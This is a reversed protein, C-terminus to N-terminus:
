FGSTNMKENQSMHKRTLKTKHHSFGCMWVGFSCFSIWLFGQFLTMTTPKSLRDTGVRGQACPRFKLEWPIGGHGGFDRHIPVSVPFPASIGAGARCWFAGPISSFNRPM